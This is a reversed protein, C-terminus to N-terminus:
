FLFGLCVKRKGRVRKPVHPHPEELPSRSGIEDRHSLPAFPQEHVPNDMFGHMFGLFPSHQLGGSHPSLSSSGPRGLLPWSICITEKANWFAAKSSSKPSLFSCGASVLNMVFHFLSKSRWVWGLCHFVIFCMVLCYSLHSIILYWTLVNTMRIYVKLVNICLVIRYVHLSNNLVPCLAWGEQLSM